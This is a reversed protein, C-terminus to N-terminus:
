IAHIRDMETFPVLVLTIACIVSENVVHLSITGFSASDAFWTVTSQKSNSTERNLKVELGWHQYIIFTKQHFRHFKTSTDKLM